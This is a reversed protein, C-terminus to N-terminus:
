KNDSHILHYNYEDIAKAFPKDKTEWKLHGFKNQMKELFEIYHEAMAINNIKFEKRIDTDWMVFLEPNRLALLKSTGTQEIGLINRFINYLEKITDIQRKNNFNISKFDLSDIKKHLKETKEIIEIFKEPNMDNMFYRFRAFNWTALLLSYAEYTYGNKLLIRCRNWIDGRYTEIGSYKKTTEEFESQNIRENM